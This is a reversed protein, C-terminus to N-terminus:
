GVEGPASRAVSLVMIHIRRGSIRRAYAEYGAYIQRAREWIAQWEQGEAERAIVRVTTARLSTETGPRSATMARTSIM